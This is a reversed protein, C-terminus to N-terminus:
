STVSVETLPSSFQVRHPLKEQVVIVDWTYVPFCIYLVYKGCLGTHQIILSIKNYIFKSYIIFPPPNFLHQQERWNSYLYEYICM